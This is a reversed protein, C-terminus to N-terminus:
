LLKKIYEKPTIGIIKRFVKRFHKSDKYGVLESVESIKLVGNKFYEQAKQIRYATLYETFNMNTQEKFERSLYSLSVHHAEAFQQFTINDFYYEHIWTKVKPILHKPAIQPEAVSLILHDFLKTLWHRLDSFTVLRDLESLFSDIEDNQFTEKLNRHLKFWIAYYMDLLFQNLQRQTVQLLEMCEILIDLQPAISAFTQRQLYQEIVRINDWWKSLDKQSEKEEYIIITSTGFKKNKQMLHHAQQFADILRQNKDKKYICLHIQDTMNWQYFWELVSNHQVRNEPQLLLMRQEDLQLFWGSQNRMESKIKCVSNKNIPASWNRLLIYILLYSKDEFLSLNEHDKISEPNALLQSITWLQQDTIQLKHTYIQDIISDITRYLVEKKIPKLLYDKVGLQIAEKAYDFSDHVTLLVFKTDDKISKMRKVLEVGDMVPMTIDTIVLEVENILAHQYAEEGDEFFFIQHERKYREFLIKLEELAWYEDEVVYINM